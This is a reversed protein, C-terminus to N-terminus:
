HKQAPLKMKGFRSETKCMVKLAKDFNLKGGTDYKAALEKDSLGKRKVIKKNM